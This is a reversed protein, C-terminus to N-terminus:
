RIGSPAILGTQYSALLVIFLAISLGIRLTLAKVVSSSSEKRHTLRYLATFLSGVIIALILVTFAQAM